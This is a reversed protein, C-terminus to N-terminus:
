YHFMYYEFQQYCLIKGQYTVEDKTEDIQLEAKKVPIGNVTIQGTKIMKKVESRSGVGLETLFKDIRM